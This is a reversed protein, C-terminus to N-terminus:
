HGDRMKRLVERKWPEIDLLKEVKEHDAYSWTIYETGHYIARKVKIGKSSLLNEVETNQDGRSINLGPPPPNGFVENETKQVSELIDNAYYICKSETNLQHPLGKEKLAKSITTADSGQPFCSKAQDLPIKDSCGMALVAISVLLIIRM